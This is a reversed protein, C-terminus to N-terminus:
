PLGTLVFLTLNALRAGIKSLVIERNRLDTALLFEMTKRDKEEAVAGAVYAPTLLIVAIFQVVMFYDFYNSALRAAQNQDTFRGFSYSNMYAVFLFFLLFGAYVCRLWFYRSRRAARIMDYFLVPGFLKLWGRRLLIAAMVGLLGWLVVHQLVSLKGGFWFVGLAATLLLVWGIREEWSERSNSWSLGRRFWNLIAM